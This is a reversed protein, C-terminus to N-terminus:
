EKKEEESTVKEIVKQAEPSFEVAFCEEQVSPIHGPRIYYTQGAEYCETSGDDFKCSMRGSIIFGIHTVPCSPPCNPMKPQISKFWDFGPSVKMKMAKSGNPLVVSSAELGDMKMTNGKEFDVIM